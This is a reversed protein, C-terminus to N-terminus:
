KTRITIVGPRCPSILVSHIIRGENWFEPLDFNIESTIIDPSTYIQTHVIALLMYMAPLDRGSETDVNRAPWWLKPLHEQGTFDVRPSDGVIDYPWPFEDVPIQKPATLKIGWGEVTHLKKKKLFTDRRYHVCEWKDWVWRPKITSISKLWDFCQELHGIRLLNNVKLEDKRQQLSKLTLDINDLTDDKCGTPSKSEQIHVRAFKQFFDQIYKIGKEATEAKPEKADLRLGSVRCVVRFNSVVQFEYLREKELYERQAIAMKKCQNRFRELGGSRTVIKNVKHAIESSISENKNV